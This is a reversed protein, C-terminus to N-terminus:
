GSDNEALVFAYYNKLAEKDPKQPLLNYYIYDSHVGLRLVNRIYEASERDYGMQLVKMFIQRHREEEPLRNFRINRFKQYIGKLFSVLNSSERTNKEIAQTGNFIQSRFEMYVASDDVIEDMSDESAENLSENEAPKAVEETRGEAIGFDETQANGWEEPMELEEAYFEESSADESLEKEPLEEFNEEQPLNHAQVSEFSFSDEESEADETGSTESSANEEHEPSNELNDMRKTFKQNMEQMVSLIENKDSESKLVQETSENELKELLQKKEEELTRVRELLKRSSENLRDLKRKESERLKKEMQFRKELEEINNKQLQSAKKQEKENKEQSKEVQSIRSELKVKEKIIKNYSKKLDNYRKRAYENEAADEALRELNEQVKQNNKRYQECDHDIEKSIQEVHGCLAQLKRSDYEGSDEMHKEIAIKLEIANECIKLYDNVTAFAIRDNYAQMIVECLLDPDQREKWVFLLMEYWELEAMDIILRRCYSEYRSSNYYLLFDSEVFYEWIEKKVGGARILNSILNLADSRKKEGCKVYIKEEAELCSRDTRIDEASIFNKEQM